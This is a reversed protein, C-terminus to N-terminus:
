PGWPTSRWWCGGGRNWRCGGWPGRHRGLGCGQRIQVLQDAQEALNSVPFAQAEFCTSAAIAGLVAVLCFQKRMPDVQCEPEHTVGERGAFVRLVPLAAFCKGNIARVM